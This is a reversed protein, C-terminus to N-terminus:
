CREEAEVALPLTIRVVTGKMLASEIEMSMADQYYLKLRYFVNKLGIGRKEENREDWDGDLSERLSRLADSDMGVGNDSVELTLRGESIRATVQIIGGEEWGAFGHKISNEIIPQLLLKLVRVRMLEDPVDFRAEFSHGFRFQQITVYNAAHSLEKGLEVVDSGKSISYRFLDALAGVITIIEHNGSKMSRMNISELTNYLFHPNIQAQLMLLEARTKMSRLENERIKNQANEEMIRMNQGITQELRAIMRNYSKIIDGIENDGEYEVRASLDGVGVAAMTDKLRKIPKVLLNAIVFACTVSVLLVVLMCLLYQDHLMKKKEIVETLAYEVSIHWDTDPIRKRFAVSANADSRVPPKSRYLTEGGEASILYSADFLGTEVDAFLSDKPVLLLYNAATGATGLELRKVVAASPQNFVTKYNYIWYADEANRFFIPDTQFIDRSNSYISSYISNGSEDLLVFYSVENLGPFMTLNITKMSGITPFPVGSTLHGQLQRSVSLENLTNEMFRARNRVNVAAFDAIAEMSSEMKRQVDQNLLRAYLLGDAVSPVSVAALLVLIFKNRMSISHFGKRFLNEPLSRLVLEKGNTVSQNKLKASIIRFPRLVRKVYVFSILLSFLLTLLSIGAMKLLLETDFRYPGYERVTHIVSLRFPSLEKVAHRYTTGETITEGESLEPVYAPFPGPATSWLIREGNAVSFFSGAVDQEPIARGFFGDELVIVIFVGNANGNTMVVRGQIEKMFRQLGAIDASSLLESDTRFRRMLDEETYVILQDRDPLFVNELKSHHLLEMHLNPLEEVGPSAAQKRYSLQNVNAGIFYVADVMYSSLRLTELKNLLQEKEALVVREDRLRMFNKFFDSFEPTQFLLMLNNISNLQGLMNQQYQRLMAEARKDNLSQDISNTYVLGIYCLVLQVAFTLAVSLLVIRGLTPSYLGSKHM